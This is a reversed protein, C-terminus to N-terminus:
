GRLIIALYKNDVIVRVTHSTLGRHFSAGPLVRTVLYKLPPLTTASAVVKGNAILRWM